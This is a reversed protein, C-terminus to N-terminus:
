RHSYLIYIVNYTIDVGKENAHSVGDIDVIVGYCVVVVIVVVVRSVVVDVFCM